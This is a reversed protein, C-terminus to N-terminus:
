KEPEHLEILPISFDSKDGSKSAWDMTPRTTVNTKTMKAHMLVDVEDCIPLSPLYSKVFSQILGFVISLQPAELLSNFKCLMEEEMAENQRILVVFVNFFRVTHLTPM